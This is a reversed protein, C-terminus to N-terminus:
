FSGEVSFRAGNFDPVNRCQGGACRIGAKYAGAFLSATLAPTPKWLVEAAGYLHETLNGTSGVAADTFDQHVLFSWHEGRHLALANTVEWFDAVPMGNEGWQFRLVETGLELHGLAGAPVVVDLDGHATVDAGTDDDRLDGRLGANAIVHTEGAIWTIGAVPHLITEPARNFHDVLDSDRFVAMSLSPVLQGERGAYQVKLRGGAIDNSEVASSSDERIAREYELTPPVVVEYPAYTNICEANRYRKAELLVTFRGPYASASGYAAHGADVGGCLDEAQYAFADGELYLDVGALGSAEVNGGAVVVDPVQGYRAFAPDEDGPRAFKWAVGHVGVSTRGFREIRVAAVEHRDDPELDLNPYVMLVQQPNTFGTVATLDWSGLHVVGRAGRISTDIDIESNRVRSLAIGRGFSAYLDGLRAEGRAGQAQVFAKELTVFTAPWPFDFSPDLLDREWTEVEDLYYRNAFLTVEDAQLSLTLWDKTATLTLREVQEGYDLVRLDEFGPLVADVRYWRVILRQNVQLVTGELPGDGGVPIAAGAPGALLIGAVLGGIV